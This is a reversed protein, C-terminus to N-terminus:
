RGVAEMSRRGRGRSVIRLREEEVDESGFASGYGARELSRAVGSMGDSASYDATRARVRRSFDAADSRYRDYDDVPSAPSDAALPTSALPVRLRIAHSRSLSSRLPSTGASPSHNSVTTAASSLSDTNFPASSGNRSPVDGFAASASRKKTHKGIANDLWWTESQPSIWDGPEGVLGDLFDRQPSPIHKWLMKEGERPSRERLRRIAPAGVRMTEGAGEEEDAQPDRAMRRKREVDLEESPLDGVLRVLPTVGDLRFHFLLGDVVGGGTVGGASLQLSGGLRASNPDTSVVSAYSAYAPRAISCTVCPRLLRYGLLNGCRRCGIDRTVCGKCGKWGRKGVREGGVGTGENWDGVRDARPPLDSSAAPRERRAPEDDFVKDPVGELLARSCVLAGCGANGDEAANGAFAFGSPLSVEDVAGNGGCYLLYVEKKSRLAMGMLANTEERTRRGGSTSSTREVGVDAEDHAFVGRSRVTTRIVSEDGVESAWSWHEAPQVVTVGGEDTRSADVIPMGDADVAGLLSDITQSARERRAARLQELRSQRDASSSQPPPSPLVRTWIFNSPATPSIPRPLLENVSPEPTPSLLSRQPPSSPPALTDRTPWARWVPPPPNSLSFSARPSSRVASSSPMTRGGRPLSTTRPISLPQNRWISGGDAAGADGRWIAALDADIAEGQARVDDLAQALRARRRLAEARREEPSIEPEGDRGGVYVWGTDGALQDGGSGPAVIHMPEGVTGFGLRRSRSRLGARLTSTLAAEEDDTDSFLEILPQGAAPPAPPPPSDSRRVSRRRTLRGVSDYFQDPDPSLHSPDTVSGTTSAILQLLSRPGDAAHAAEDTPPSAPRIRLAPLDRAPMNAPEPTPSQRPSILIIGSSRGSPPSLPRDDNRTSSSFALPTTTREDPGSM